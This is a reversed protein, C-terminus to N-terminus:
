PSALDSAWSLLSYLQSELSPWRARSDRSNIGKTLIDKLGGELRGESIKM